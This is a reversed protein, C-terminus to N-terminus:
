SEDSFGIDETNDNFEQPWWIFKTKDTIKQGILKVFDFKDKETKFHVILQLGLLNEQQFEPMGKWEENFDIKNKETNIMDVFSINTSSFDFEINEMDMKLLEVDWGTEAIRNDILRLAKVEVESLDSMCVCPVKKLGILKAAELRGHGIIIEKKKDIVIPQTVGFKRMSEAIGEIQTQPHLKANLKYPVIEEILIEQIKM